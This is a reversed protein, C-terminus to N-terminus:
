KGLRWAALGMGALQGFQASDSYQGQIGAQQGYLNGASQNGQIATQYGNAAFNTGQQAIMNAM